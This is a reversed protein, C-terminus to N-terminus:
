PMTGPKPVLFAKSVYRADDTESWAGTSLLRATEKDLFQKEQPALDQCSNGQHFCPPPKRIWPLRFGSQLWNLVQLPAGAQRWGGLRRRVRAALAQQCQGRAAGQRWGGVRTARARERHVNRATLPLRRPSERRRSRTAARGRTHQRPSRAPRGRPRPSRTSRRKQSRARSPRSGSKSSHTSAKRTGTVRPLVRSRPRSPRWSASM